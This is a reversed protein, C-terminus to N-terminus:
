SFWVQGPRGDVILASRPRLHLTGYRATGPCAPKYRVRLSVGRALKRRATARWWEWCREVIFAGVIGIAVSLGPHTRTALGVAVAVVAFWIGWFGAQLKLPYARCPLDLIERWLHVFPRAAPRLMRHWLADDRQWSRLDDSLNRTWGWEWRWPGVPIAPNTVRQVSRRPSLRFQQEVGGSDVLTVMSRRNPALLHARSENKVVQLHPSPFSVHLLDGESLSVVDTDETTIALEPETEVTM